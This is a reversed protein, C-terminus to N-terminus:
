LQKIDVDLDIDISEKKDEVDLPEKNAKADRQSIIIKELGIDELIENILHKM